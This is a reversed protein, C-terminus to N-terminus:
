APRLVEVLHNDWNGSLLPTQLPIVHESLPDIVMIGGTGGSAVFCGPQGSPAVGSGDPVRLSRLFQGSLADWFTVLDGRPCSVALLRGSSDHRISGTYHRMRRLIRGSAELPQLEGDRCLAVLPVTEGAPGMYQMAVAVTDDPGVSLHRMSLQRLRPELRFRDLLSGSGADLFCLSPDMTPVNLPRRPLDPHTLLGGNAVVLTTGGSLLMIEHPGIGHSPFEGVRRYRDASDYVGIVGCGGQYDNESTYFLEGGPHFVGHGQFHRGAEAALSGVVANQELDIVSAFRGPRRAIVVAHPRVPHAAVGHGRGELPLDILRHGSPGFGGVRFAGTESRRAAVFARRMAGAPAAGPLGTAALGAAAGALFRRRDTAM